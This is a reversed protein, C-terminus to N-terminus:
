RDDLARLLTRWQLYVERFGPERPTPGPMRAIEIWEPKPPLMDDFNEPELEAMSVPVQNRELRGKQPGTEDKIVDRRILMQEKCELLADSIEEPVRYDAPDRAGPRRRASQDWWMVFWESQMPGLFGIRGRAMWRPDIRERRLGEHVWRDRPFRPELAGGDDSAIQYTGPIMRFNRPRLRHLPARALPTRPRVRRMKAPPPADAALRPPDIEPPLRLEADLHFRAPRLVDLPLIPPPLAPLQLRPALTWFERPPRAPLPLAALPLGRPLRQRLLRRARWRSFWGRFLAILSIM